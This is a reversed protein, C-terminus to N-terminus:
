RVKISCLGVIRATDRAEAQDDFNHKENETIKGYVADQIDAILLIELRM